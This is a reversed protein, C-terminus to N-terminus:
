DPGSQGNPKISSGPIEGVQRGIQPDLKETKRDAMNNLIALPLSDGNLDGSLSKKSQRTLTQTHNGSRCGQGRGVKLMKLAPRTQALLVAKREENRKDMNGGM